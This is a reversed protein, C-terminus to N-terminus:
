YSKSAVLCGCHDIVPLCSSRVAITSPFLNFRDVMVMSEDTVSPALKAGPYTKFFLAAMIRIEMMALHYAGCM